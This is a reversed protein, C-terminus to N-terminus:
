KIIGAEVGSGVPPDRSATNWPLATHPPRRQPGKAKSKFTLATHSDTPLPLFSPLRLLPSTSLPLSIFLTFETPPDQNSTIIYWAVKSQVELRVSIFVSIPGGPQGDKFIAIPSPEQPSIEHSKGKSYITQLPECSKTSPSYSMQRRSARSQPTEM